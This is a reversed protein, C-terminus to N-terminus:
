AASEARQREAVRLWADVVVPDFQTGSRERIFEVARDASLGPRYPRDSTLADFVDAVALIRAGLDISTGSLGAPYGGGNFWEHHQAVIPLVAAFQAVPELIRVGKQPHSRMMRMEDPTLRGAKDLIASPIALKGIDHLVAGRHLNALAQRDLGMERGIVLAMQTVRESHGMTWSSKADISRALANMTGVQLAELEEFQAHLEGSMLNFAQALEQFEDGSSVEVRTAFDRRGIRRTAERLRELPHLSQRILQLSFLVVLLFTFLLTLLFARSFADTPALVEDIPLTFVVVVPPAQYVNQLPLVRYSALYDRGGAQWVFRGASSTSAAAAADAVFVPQSELSTALVRGREDAVTVDTGSPLLELNSLGWLWDPKLEGVLRGANAPVQLFIRMAGAEGVLHVARGGHDGVSRAAAEVAPPLPPGHLPDVVGRDDMWSLSLVTPDLDSGRDLAPGGPNATRGRLITAALRFRTEMLQLRELIELAGTKTDHHLQRYATESLQNRVQALSLAAIGALPVLASVVFLLLIRRAIRSRFLARNM